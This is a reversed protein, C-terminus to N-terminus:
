RIYVFENSALIVQCLAQWAETRREDNSVGPGDHRLREFRELFALNRRSEEPAPSRGLTQEYLQRIRGADDTQPRTILDAALTRAAQLVLDSNLMFLAQPAVTTTARDGNMVNGDTTDFLQFMNYLHNRVIPLYLSRRRTEYGTKDRSTHDFFYARNDVQLLSGGMTEDLSGSVALLADRIEEAELRRVDWRWYLRDEPDKQLADADPESSMQYTKSLMILRHMAKVSWGEAVFRRALWDLLEPHTPLAGNTGFNDTTSVLGRGFHWRWIRNVMVRSTLPHEPEVLWRALELRGSKSGGFSPPSAESFVEPARRPIVKGLTLHSGRIHVAVDTATGETVGMASPMVPAAKELTALDARLKTLRAKTEEPYLTDLKEPLTAGEAKTARVHEDAATVQRAIEAKAAAVEAEHAANRALEPETALTNEHWRAVTTFSDMTKTSKFVGALAYYDAATIPDFKHDHCRACGITLGLVARGLTDIQEDIIDMEMKTKDVEALVKPGLTLFGTAILREHQVEVSDAKPLLDGALQEVLFQDYPTDRNFASVVYDRYRWANGHAVNEDLGNSDAYRAVDLWHRGWREGYRPSALLRGVVRDFADPADDALFADVEKSTPPLGTLDFTARRILTRKDAAPAPKLGQAELQALIFQDLGNGPSIASSVPPPTPNSPPKFGWAAKNREGDSAPKTSAALDMAPAPAGMVVWETLFEIQRDDLKGKPPMQISEDKYRVATILLSEELNGPVVAPGLDGGKLWDAKNDLRLNGKIRKGEASHCSYCHEVLM